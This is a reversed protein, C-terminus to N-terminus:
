KLINSATNVYEIVRVKGNEDPFSDLILDAMDKTAIRVSSELVSSIQVQAVYRAPNGAINPTRWGIGTFVNENNTFLGNVIYFNLVVIEDNQPAPKHFHHVLCPITRGASSIVQSQETSDHTWGGGVYCIQPRHGMMTRPRATYPIYVNAWQNDTRNIYLRSLFDDVAAVRQINKPLPVDKGMWNGIETPFVRLPVPLTIPSDIALQLRSALVRYGIGSLTLLILSLVCVMSTSIKGLGTLRTYHM